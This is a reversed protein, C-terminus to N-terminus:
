CGISRDRAINRWAGVVRNQDAVLVKDYLAVTPCIHIPLAYLV